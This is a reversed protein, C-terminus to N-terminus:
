KAVEKKKIYISHLPLTLAIITPRSNPKCGKYQSLGNDIAAYEKFCYSAGGMPVDNGMPKKM